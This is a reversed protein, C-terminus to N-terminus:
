TGDDEQSWGRWLAEGITCDAVGSSTKWMRAKVPESPAATAPGGALELVLKRRVADPFQDWDRVPLLFSRPGGIVCDAYYEDLSLDNRSLVNGPLMLPLGNITIGEGIAVDRSITVLGGQNNPGDGSIDIVRRNSDFDNERLARQGYRIAGAISTQFLSKVTAKELMDAVQHADEGGGIMTWPVIVRRSGSAGWEVYTVAVRGYVGDAIADIVERSRFAAAYGQRQLQLEVTKMSSSTDVAIVLEVDVPESAASTASTILPAAFILGSLAARLYRAVANM